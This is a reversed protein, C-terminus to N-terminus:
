LYRILKDMEKSWRQSIGLEETKNLIKNHDFDKKFDSLAQNLQNAIEEPDFSSPYILDSSNLLDEKSRNQFTNTVCRVGFEAMEFPVVGPHPANMLSIGAASDKMINTYEKLDLKPIVNLHNEDDIYISHADFAGLGIFKFKQSHSERFKKSWQRLSEIIIEPCNREAHSEPRFYVIIQSKKRAYHIPKEPSLYQHQFTIIKSKDKFAEPYNKNLFKLLINSNIIKTFDFHYSNKIAANFSNNSSFISEDEQIFYILNCNKVIKNIEKCLYASKANYAILTPSSYINLNKQNWNNFLQINVELGSKIKSLPHEPKDLQYKAGEYGSKQDTLILELRSSCKEKAYATIFRFFANMGGFIIELDISHMIVYITKSESKTMKIIPQPKIMYSYFEYNNIGIPKTLGPWYKDLYVKGDIFSDEEKKILREIEDKENKDNAITRKQHHTKIEIQTAFYHFPNIYKAYLLNFDKNELRTVMEETIPFPEFDTYIMYNCYYDVLNKTEITINNETIQKCFHEHDLHKNLLKKYDEVRRNMIRNNNDFLNFSTLDKLYSVGCKNITTLSEWADQSCFDPKTVKNQKFYNLANFAPLILQSDTFSTIHLFLSQLHAEASKNNFYLNKDVNGTFYTCFLKIM